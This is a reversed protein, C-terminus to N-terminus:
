RVTYRLTNNTYTGIRKGNFKYIRMTDAQIYSIKSNTKDGEKLIIYDAEYKSVNTLKVRVM